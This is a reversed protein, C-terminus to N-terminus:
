PKSYNCLKMKVTEFQMFVLKLKTLLEKKKRERQHTEPRFSVMQPNKNDKHGGCNGM